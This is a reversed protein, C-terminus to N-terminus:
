SARVDKDSPASAGRFFAAGRLRMGFAVEAVSAGAVSACISDGAVAEVSLPAVIGFFRAERALFGTASAAGTSATELSVEAGVADGSTM